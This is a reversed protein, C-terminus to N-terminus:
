EADRREERDVVSVPGGCKPCPAEPNKEGRYGKWDCYTGWTEDVPRVAKCWVFFRRSPHHLRREM